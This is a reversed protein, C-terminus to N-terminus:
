PVRVHSTLLLPTPTVQKKPVLICQGNCLCGKALTPFFAGVEEKAAQDAGGAVGKSVFSVPASYDAKERKRFRHRAM